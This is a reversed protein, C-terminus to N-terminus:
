PARQPANDPGMKLLDGNSRTNASTRRYGCNWYGNLAVVVAMVRPSYEM